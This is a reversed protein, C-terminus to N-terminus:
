HTALYEAASMVPIKSFGFDKGNRTIIVSCGTNLACHYQLADEFDNAKMAISMDIETVTLDVIEFIKALTRLHSYLSAKDYKRAIYAFNAITLASVYFKWGDLAGKALFDQCLLKYESRLLYDIVFNTDLFIRKM